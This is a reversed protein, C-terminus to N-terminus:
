GLWGSILGDSQKLVFLLISFKVENCIMSSLETLLSIELSTQLQM